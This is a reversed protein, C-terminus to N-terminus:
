SEGGRMRVNLPPSSGAKDQGMYVTLHPFPIEINREDFARKLRRNFERGVRWQQSPTTKTRAKIVVASDAFQDLGLIEIPELIDGSYEPDSRLGEDVEKIVEVVEDVDERYAVGVEFVYRSFEKTMNTVTGIQGNRIFHVNGALDRLITMRLNVKEVIGGKDGLTVVDGVRIQDELLIFFGSIVDQVLQQSGFGVALGVIGAAALIPGIDIGLEKLLMMFAVVMIVVSLVYKVVSGLTEARKQAEVDKARAAIATFIRRSLIGAVKLAALTLVIVLIVSPGTELVWRKVDVIFASLDM